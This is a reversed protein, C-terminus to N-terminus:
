ISIYYFVGYVLLLIKFNWLPTEHLHFYLNGLHRSNCEHLCSIPAKAKKKKESSCMFHDCWAFLQTVHNCNNPQAVLTLSSYEREQFLLCSNLIWWSEICFCINRTPPLATRGSHQGRSKRPPCRFLTELMWNEHQESQLTYKFIHHQKKEFSATQWGFIFIDATLSVSHEDGLERFEVM